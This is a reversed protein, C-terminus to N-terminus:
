KCKKINLELAKAREFYFNEMINGEASVAFNCVWLTPDTQV